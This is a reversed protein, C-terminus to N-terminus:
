LWVGQISKWLVTSMNYMWPEWFSITFEQSTRYCWWSSVYTSYSQIFLRLVVHIPHIALSNPENRRHHIVHRSNKENLHMYKSFFGNHAQTSATKELYCYHRCRPETCAAAAPLQETEESWEGPSSDWRASQVGAPSKHIDKCYTKCQESRDTQVRM